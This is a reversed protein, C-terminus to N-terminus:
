KINNELEEIEDNWKFKFENDILNKLEPYQSVIEEEFPCQACCKVRNSKLNRKCLKIHNNLKKIDM